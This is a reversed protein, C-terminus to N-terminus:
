EFEITSVPKDSIDWMVRNVGPVTEIIRDRMRRLMDWPIEVSEATVADVTNIARIIVPWGMYRKGDKIGTSQMDPIVAFYQWPVNEMKGIEERVIADAERLAELRDRTIAGTCRVGLGPGPFPQRYVMNDPLGLASGVVRVEDKYLLKVPEVLEFQLDEPLGGVNHHAKVGDSELIDPYITGQGLFAIGDLKAAEEAFVDIFEKGIIKRKTEPDDVGALKDLFRDVADVYILNAGLEERFVKIVMEPEGKRLLGHNVHVCVLNDGIAKLLTYPTKTTYTTVKFELYDGSIEKEADDHDYYYMNVYRATDDYSMDGLLQVYVETNDEMYEVELCKAANQLDENSYVTSSGELVFKQGCGTMTMATIVAAAIVAIKKM